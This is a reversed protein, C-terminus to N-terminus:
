REVTIQKVLFQGRTFASVTMTGPVEARLLGGQDIWGGVGQCSWLVDANPLPQNELGLVSLTLQDGVKMTEPTKLTLTETGAAPKPGYFMVGSAVEREVKDSPRNITLGLVNMTSSGGGDLNMADICGLRKMVKALDPLSIGNSTTQAGEVVVFWLDGEKTRGVASRPHRTNVFAADFKQVDADISIQGNRVLDPGGGVAQDIKAWDYGTSKFTFTVKQGVRVRSLLPIKTGTAVIMAHGKPVKVSLEDAVLAIVEGTNVGTPFWAPASIKVLVRINPARSPSIGVSPTNVCISNQGCEQNFENIGIEPLGEIKVSGDFPIKGIAAVDPGWAMVSRKYGQISLLEGHRVMVGLPDGTYPFFDANLGAIAGTRAVMKGVTERGKTKDEAYVVGQGLEPVAHVTESKLSWRLAHIVRPITLDVEERYVLGPAITKEWVQAAAVGPVLAALVLFHRLRM